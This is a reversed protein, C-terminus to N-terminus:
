RLRAVHERRLRGGVSGVAVLKVGKEDQVWKMPGQVKIQEKLPDGELVNRIGEDLTPLMGHEFVMKGGLQVPLDEDHISEKLVPYVESPKLFVLKEATHPDVWGKVVKWILPFYAPCNCVEGLLNPEVAGEQDEEGGVGGPNGESLSPSSSPSGGLEEEEASGEASPDGGLLYRTHKWGVITSKTINAIDAFCIPLGDKTRRGTWHPYQIRDYITLTQNEQRFTSADVFQALAASPDLRRAHLFRLLTTKDNIAYPIDDPHLDSPRDLLNKEACLQLLTELATASTTNNSAM